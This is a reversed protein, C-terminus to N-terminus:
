ILAKQVTTSKICCAFPAEQSLQLKFVPDGSARAALFAGGGVPASPWWVPPSSHVVGAQTSSSDGHLIKSTSTYLIVQTMEFDTSCVGM